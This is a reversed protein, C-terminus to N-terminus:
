PQQTGQDRQSKRAAAAKALAARLREVPQAGQLRQQGDIVFHPVGSIGASRFTVGAKRGVDTVRAFMGEVRDAGYKAGLHGRLDQGQAPAAPNLLFPRYVVRVPPGDWGTLAAKLNAGGIRCWPCITDHHVAVTIPRAAPPPPADSAARNCATLGTLVLAFAATLALSRKM